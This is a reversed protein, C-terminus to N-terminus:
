LVVIAEAQSALIRATTAVMCGDSHQETSRFHRIDSKAGGISKPVAVRSNLPM